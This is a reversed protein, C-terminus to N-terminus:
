ISFDVRENSFNPSYFPDIRLLEGWKKQMFAVEKRFREKKEPTDEHGRSISEHHYLEAHPTWVNRFNAQRVKLCFDVDNFAVKLNNEDLGGVKEYICKKVLLCAATVASYNQNCILRGFYGYHNKPFNKHSHNAVGGIGLIVGAHQLTNNSYYLKAGVCGIDARVAHSVLESLWEPSIVEIDNNILGIIEGNSHQVGFNNIASYNFPFDYRLVRVRKDERQIQKFFSLSEPEVSGNDLILIEYNTYTTKNLISRVCTETLKWHDRTPILLSVLPAPDPLPWRVRYTNPLIGAEIGVAPNVTAFYDRLARIGAETTYSKEGSGMATSGAVIRWHYLVKPIHVIDQGRVYPLCRLLLDQDQSGEVGSRFGGIRQLLARRYVGLHSVYNQSYFLDPNWDSKFHPEVRQGQANLKDEDSYIIQAKQRRNIAQVVYLLAHEPLEDDHDLLAVWAGSALGLASNSAKSIHGNATRYCVKIRPDVDEYDQLIAKVHPKSSADDAICLEWHPYSQKRVSDICARLFMVDTNYTPMAVSILPLDKFERLMRQVEAPSPLGPREINAMWDEYSGRGPAQVFRQKYANFISDIFPKGSATAQSKFTDVLAAQTTIASESGAHALSVLMKKIADSLDLKVLNLMRVRFVCAVENPDFRLAHVPVHFKVLRSATEDSKYPLEYANEETYGQGYDVYFMAHNKLLTSEILLDFQYCGAPLPEDLVLEFHPDEGTSRWFNLKKIDREVDGQPQLRDSLVLTTTSDFARALRKKTLLLNLRINPELGPWESLASEYHQIAEAFRGDRFAQNAKKLCTTVTKM